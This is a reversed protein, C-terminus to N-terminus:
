GPMLPMPATVAAPSIRVAVAGISFNGSLTSPSWRSSASSNLVSAVRRVSAGSNLSTSSSRQSPGVLANPESGAPM